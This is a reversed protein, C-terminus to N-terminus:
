FRFRMMGSFMLSEIGLNKTVSLEYSRKGKENFLLGASVVLDVGGLDITTNGSREFSQMTVPHMNFSEWYRGVEGFTFYSGSKFLLSTNDTVPVTFTGLLSINTITSTDYENYDRNYFPPDEPVTELESFSGMDPVSNWVLELGIRELPQWGVGLRVSTGDAVYSTRDEGWFSTGGFIYWESNQTLSPVSMVVMLVISIFWKM